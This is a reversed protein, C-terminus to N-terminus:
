DALEIAKKLAKASLESALRSGAGGQEIVVSIAYPHKQDYVFGTYWSNTEVSKDDSTEASGTKGCVTYGDIQARTATGSQVAEYMYESILAAAEASVIQRYPQMTASHTTTGTASTIERVLTPKMMVGGNAVAGTIMAMHLPTVLVKGQGIGSWVLESMNEMTTPFQSNYVAFDGFKFNENFGMKEATEQLRTLGLQYALKGFTVNCSKKLATELDVVGHATKGACVISGGEYEWEGSCMFQQNVVNPDHELASALTVIKFVSGPTYLGQLCRNLYATDEVSEGGADYPDYDPKSIMALIEGTKYNTVCVAGRYGAPFISAIYATLQADITLEISSGKREVGNFLASLRELLSESIDLLQASYFGEIGTGSMGATDGITVALARRVAADNFYTRQGNKSTALTVGNRDLIDGRQASTANLRTNYSNSAWISGQEFVTLAFWASLCIFAVAVLTGVIRMNRRLEKM